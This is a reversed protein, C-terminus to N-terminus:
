IPRGPVCRDVARSSGWLPPTHTLLLESRESDQGRQVDRARDSRQVSRIQWYATLREDAPTAPDDARIRPAGPSKEPEVRRLEVQNSACSDLNGRENQRRFELEVARVGALTLYYRFAARVDGGGDLWLKDLDPDIAVIEGPQSREAIRRAATAIARSTEGSAVMQEYRWQLPVLPWLVILSGIAVVLWARGLQGVLATLGIAALGATLPLLPLLFRGNPIVEFKANAIPLLIAYPIITALALVRHGRAAVFGAVVLAVAIWLTPDRLYDAIHGRVDVAGAQIRASAVGLKALSELYQALGSLGSRSGYSRSVVGAETLSGGGTLLNYAVLNLNPVVFALAAIWFWRDALWHRRGMLVALAPGGLLILTTTHSQLMLGLVFAAAVFLRPSDRGIAAATLALGGGAFLPTLSHGWAVHSSVLVHAGSTAVIGAAIAATRSSGGLQRTLTFTVTVTLAGAVAVVARAAVPSPGVAVFVAALLYNFGSGLYTNVNTLPHLRGQSVEYSRLVEFVEDTLSPVEMLSPLRILLAAVAIVALVPIDTAHALPASRNVGGDPRDFLRNTLRRTPDSRKASTNNV